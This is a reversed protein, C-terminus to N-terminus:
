QNHELAHRAHTRPKAFILIAPSYVILDLEGIEQPRLIMVHRAGNFAFFESLRQDLVRGRSKAANRLVLTESEAILIGTHFVDMGPRQSVFALIDGTALRDRYAFLSARPNAAFSVAVPKLSRMYTLTKRVRVAGPLAVPRCMGNAINNLGWEAFYHNRAFWDIEGDRYRMRRLEVTYGEPSRARAAALVTECFTVCDFGDERLVLHEKENAGGGLPDVVYPAGLFARSIYAIRQSIDPLPRAEEILRPLKSEVAFGPRVLCAAGTAALRLLMRRSLARSNRRM